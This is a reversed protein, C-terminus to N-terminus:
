FTVNVGLTFTRTRVWTNRRDIGPQLPNDGEETDVYRVEPDAGSYKTLIFPNQATTYVRVKSFRSGNTLPVTYGVTINDLAVYDGKEVHLSSYAPADTLFRLERASEVVNYSTIAGPSEYFTRYQNVISHGFASRVLFNFDFNRYMASTNWNLTFKPLGQGLVQGDEFQDYVGDGNVDEYVWKGNEDLGKYKLGWIQGVPQGERLRIMFTGNQGPSGVNAQFRQGSEGLNLDRIETNFTALNVGTTVSLDGTSILQYNLAIELGNNRLDGGNLFTNPALNPPVPVSQFQIFDTTTRTYYDISGTLRNSMLSFDFGVNFEGKKEWALDPNANYTPAYGPVYQGNVLFNGSRGFTLLSLYSGNPQQGTVGYGARIKLSNFVPVDFLNTLTAGASVAPFLGWKNDQGFRTSGEYRAAASLFYAEKFNLNVRGFFAILKNDNKYSFANAVGNPIDLASGIDNYTFADSVFNGASIGFGENTFEQFSYGGVAALNLDGFNQSFNVTTEFLDFQFKNTNREALGKRGFGVFLSQKSFYRGFFEEETQKSYSASVSLSSTLEYTASINTNLRAYQGENRNQEIMAVPNLFDFRTEQYYGGYQEFAPDSSRVPATPNYITSYRFADNFGFNSERNTTVIQANITMKDNLAKQTLNLRTNLNQFGTFRQIGDIDRFNVSARYTTGKTGGGLSVTHVHSIATRSIEDLWNTDAGRDGGAVNLEGSFNRFESATLVPIRRAISEASVYGNYDVTTKGAVGKKTTIIIVGASGRTGYIAAASGDKLVDMSAIDNPDVSNLSAGIVGDIVILPSSNAGVSSLGRLRINFGQSPNSGERVVQLGAVKGALLQSPDNVNGRNFEEAKVSSVASTIEKKDQTGYGVVVVESLATVDSAMSVNIVSKSGVAAEQTVYGVFSFVLTANPGVAISFNGDVDTVTGNSTGKELINVGPIGANDDASTVKGTVVQQAFAGVSIVFFLGLTVCKAINKYLINM